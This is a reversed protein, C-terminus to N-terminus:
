ALKDLHTAERMRAAWENLDVNHIQVRYRQWTMISLPGPNLAVAWDRMEVPRRYRLRLFARQSWDAASHGLSLLQSSLLEARIASPPTRDHDEEHYFDSIWDIHDEETFIYSGARYSKKIVPGYLRVVTTRQMRWFQDAYQPEMRGHPICIWKKPSDLTYAVIDYPQGSEDLAQEMLTDYNTTLILLPTRKPLADALEALFRHTESPGYDSGGLKEHLFADLRKHGFQQVYFSAIEAINSAEFESPPFRCEQALMAKLEHSSPPASFLRRSHLSLSAGAGLFPIVRGKLMSKAMYAYPFDDRTTRSGSGASFAQEDLEPGINRSSTAQNQKLVYRSHWELLASVLADHAIEYNQEKDSGYAIRLISMEVLRELLRRVRERSENSHKALSDVTQVFKAGSPSVLFGLIRAWIAQEDENLSNMAADISDQMHLRTQEELRRQEAEERQTREAEQEQLRKARWALIAKGLRDHFIEYRPEDAAGSRAAVRRLIRRDGQELSHLIPALRSPEIKAYDALDSVSHAIKSGSPTVLIHFVSAAIDKEEANFQSMVRDLHTRVIAAAGGEMELTTLRLTTSGEEHEREWLRTMVLQLYPTEIRGEKESELPLTGSGTAEFQFSETQVDHLVTKVLQDEITIKGRKFYLRNYERLPLRIADEAAAPELHDIRRYSDWLVPVRGKFRDLRALSDERLSLLFSVALSGTTIAGPFQEAFADDEPHYLSYEEFQDLIIMLRRGSVQHCAILFDRLSGKQSKRMVDQFKERDSSNQAAAYLTVAVTEKIGGLPDNQWGRLVISSSKQSEDALTPFIIPLLENRERLRPLVGARLVSSKGVGSDGYLLTLPAAFLSATILRTERERGFFFAADAEDFPELGRYPSNHRTDNQMDGM